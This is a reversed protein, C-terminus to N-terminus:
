TIGGAHRRLATLLDGWWLGIMRVYAASQLGHRAPHDERLSSLDSHRVTIRTGGSCADFRIDVHTAEDPAFNSNRWTFALHAPPSWAVIRGIDIVTEAGRVRVSEFLRGGLKPELFLMGRDGAAPENRFRPGRRWWQDIQATFIEFAARPDVNVTVTVTAVDGPKPAPASM